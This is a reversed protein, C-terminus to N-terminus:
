KILTNFVAKAIGVANKGDGHICITEVVVPIKLGSITTIKKEFVMEKFKTTQTLFGPGIASTAMLFAAGLIASNKKM